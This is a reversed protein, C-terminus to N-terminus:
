EFALPLFREMNYSDLPWPCDSLLGLPLRFQYMQDFGAGPSAGVAPTSQAYASPVSPESNADVTQMANKPEALDLLFSTRMRM